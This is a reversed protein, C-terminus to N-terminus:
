SYILRAGIATRTFVAPLLWPRSVQQFCDLVAAQATTVEFTLQARHEFELEITLKGLDHFWEVEKNGMVEIFSQEYRALCYRVPEPIRFMGSTATGQSDLDGIDLWYARSLVKARFNEWLPAAGEAIPVLHVHNKVLELWRLSQQMDFLMVDSPQIKAKDGSDEDFRARFMALLRQESHFSELENKLLREGLVNELEKIFVDDRQISTIQGIEDRETNLRHTSLADIPEPTWHIDMLDQGEYSKM